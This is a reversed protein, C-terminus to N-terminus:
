DPTFRIPYSVTVIGGEPEPFHLQKIEDAVCYATRCSPLTLEDLGVHSVSGDKAIVFRMTVDGEADKKHVLGERFCAQFKPFADRMKQKIVSTPLRGRAVVNSSTNTGDVPADADPTAAEPGSGGRARSLPFHRTSLDPGCQAKLDSDKDIERPRPIVSDQWVKMPPLPERTSCSVLVGLAM